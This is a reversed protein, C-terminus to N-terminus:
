KQPQFIVDVWYNTANYTEDPFASVGYRFVGNPGDADDALARLPPNAFECTAFYAPDASYYGVDTHYSAIYTTNATITVPTDLIAQQWGSDTENAFITSALLTGDAAWLNGLHSGTNEPGKYFRLGTVTGDVDSRFRVGLEV